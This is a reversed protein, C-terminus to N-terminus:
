NARKMNNSLHVWKQIIIVQEMNRIKFGYAKTIIAQQAKTSYAKVMATAKSGIAKTITETQSCINEMVKLYVMWMSAKMDTVM